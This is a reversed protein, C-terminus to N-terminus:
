RVSPPPPAPTPVQPQSEGAPQKPSSTVPSPPPLFALRGLGAITMILGFILATASVGACIEGVRRKDTALLVPIAGALVMGLAFLSLPVLSIAVALREVDKDLLKSAIAAVAAGNAIALSTHFRRFWYTRDDIRAQEEGQARAAQIKMESGVLDHERDQLRKLEQSARELEEKVVDLPDRTGPPLLRITRPSERRAVEMKWISQKLEEVLDQQERRALRGQELESPV